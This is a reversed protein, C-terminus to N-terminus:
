RKSSLHYLRIVASFELPLEMPMNQVLPYIMHINLWSSRSQVPLYFATMPDILLLKIPHQFSYHNVIGLKKILFQFFPFVKVVIISWM